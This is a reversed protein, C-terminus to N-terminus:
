GHHSPGFASPRLGFFGLDSLRVSANLTSFVFSLFALTERAMSVGLPFSLALKM